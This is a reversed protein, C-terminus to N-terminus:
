SRNRRSIQDHKRGSAHQPSVPLPEGVLIKQKRMDKDSFRTGSKRSMRQIMRV